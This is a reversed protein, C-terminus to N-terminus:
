LIYDISSLRIFRRPMMLRLALGMEILEDNLCTTVYTDCELAGGPKLFEYFFRIFLTDNTKDTQMLHSFLMLDM